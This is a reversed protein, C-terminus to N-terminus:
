TSRPSSVKPVAREDFVAHRAAVDFWSDTVQRLKALKPALRDIRFQRTQANFMIQVM